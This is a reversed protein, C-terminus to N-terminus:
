KKEICRQDFTIHDIFRFPIKYEKQDSEADILVLEGHQWIQKWDFRIEVYENPPIEFRISEEYTYKEHQTIQFQEIITKELKEKLSGELIVGKFLNFSGGFKSELSDMSSQELAIQVTRSWDKTVKLNREIKAKSNRSDMKRSESGIPEESYTTNRFYIEYKNQPVVEESDSSDFYSMEEGDELVRIAGPECVEVCTECGLCEDEYLVEVKGNTFSFVEAPCSGVCEECGTCKYQDLIVEFM